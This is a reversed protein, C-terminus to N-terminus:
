MVVMVYQDAEYDGCPTRSSEPHGVVEVDVMPEETNVQRQRTQDM